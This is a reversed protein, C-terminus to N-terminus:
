KGVKFLDRLDEIVEEIKSLSCWAEELQAREPMREGPFTEDDKNLEASMAQMAVKIAARIKM